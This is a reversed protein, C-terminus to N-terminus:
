PTKSRLRPDSPTLERGSAITYPDDASLAGNYWRSGRALAAAGSLLGGRDLPLAASLSEPLTGRLHPTVAIFEGREHADLGLMAMLADPGSTPKLRGMGRRLADRRIVLNVPAAIDVCRQCWLQGHYGGDSFRQGFYPDIIKGGPLFLGGSWRVIEGSVDTLLGSVAAIRPDLWGVASLEFPGRQDQPSLLIAIWDVNPESAAANLRSICDGSEHWIENADLIKMNPLPQRARLRWMGTRPGLANQELSLINALDRDVLLRDLAFRQSEVTEPKAGTEASATSGPNIRWAYLLERVHVPEEGVALARTLTDYDHSWTTRNDGYANIKELFERKLAMLHAPYCCNM